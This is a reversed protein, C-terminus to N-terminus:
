SGMAAPTFQLQAGAPDQPENLGDCVALALGVIKVAGAAIGELPEIVTVAVETSSGVLDTLAIMAIMGTVTLTEGCLMVTGAPAVM